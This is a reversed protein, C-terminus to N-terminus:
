VGFILFYGANYFCHLGISPMLWGKYRDRFYGFLLSPLLVSAAMWPPHNIFHLATFVVSSLVNALSVGAFSATFVARELLWGQLLGRFVLEELVPQVMVLMLFILPSALIWAPHVVSFGALYLGLWVMPAAVLAVAYHWDRFLKLTQRPVTKEISLAILTVVDFAM